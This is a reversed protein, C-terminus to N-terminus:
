PNKSSYAVWEAYSIKQDGDTDIEKFQAMVQPSKRAETQDIYGDKNTDLQQFLSSDAGAPSTAGSTQALRPGDANAAGAGAALPLLVLASGLLVVASKSKM